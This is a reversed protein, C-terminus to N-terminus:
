DQFDGAKEKKGEKKKTSFISNGKKLNVMFKLIKQIILNTKRKQLINKRTDYCQRDPNLGKWEEVNNYKDFHLQFWCLVWVLIRYSLLHQTLWRICCISVPMLIKIIKWKRQFVTWYKKKLLTM